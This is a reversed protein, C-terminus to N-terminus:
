GRMTAVVDCCGGFSMVYFRPMDCGSPPLKCGRTSIPGNKAHLPDYCTALLLHSLFQHLTGLRQPALGLRHKKRHGCRRGASVSPSFESFEKRRTMASVRVLVSKHAFPRTHDKIGINSLGTGGARRLNPHRLLTGRAASRWM